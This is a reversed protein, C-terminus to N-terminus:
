GACDGPIPTRVGVDTVVYIQGGSSSITGTLGTWSRLVAGTAGAVCWAQIVPAAGSTVFLDSRGATVRTGFGTLGSVASVDVPTLTQPDLRVVAAGSDSYGGLWISGNVVAISAVGVSTLTAARRVQGGPTVALVHVPSSADLALLRDRSPDAAIASVLGAPGPVPVARRAGPAANLVGVSTALYLHGALVATDYITAPAAVDPRRVHADTDFVRVPTPAAGESVIWLRSGSPDAVLHLFQLSQYPVGAVTLSWLQQRTRADLARLEVARDPISQLLVFIQRGSAIADVVAADTGGVDLQEGLPDPADAPLTRPAVASSPTVVGGSSPAAAPHPSPGGRNVLAVTVLVIAALGLLVVVGRRSNRAVPSPGDEGAGSPGPEDDLFEVQM